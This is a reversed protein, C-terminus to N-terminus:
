ASAQLATISSVVLSESLVIKNDVLDVASGLLKSRQSLTHQELNVAIIEQESSGSLAYVEPVQSSHKQNAHIVLIQNHSLECVDAVDGLGYSAFDLVWEYRLNITTRERELPLYLGERSGERVMTVLMQNDFIRAPELVFPFMKSDIYLRVQISNKIEEWSLFDCQEETLLLSPQLLLLPTGDAEVQRLMDDTYNTFRIPTHNSM